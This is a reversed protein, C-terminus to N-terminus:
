KIQQESSTRLREKKLAKWVSDEKWLINTNSIIERLYKFKSNENSLITKDQKGSRNGLEQLSELDRDNLYLKM